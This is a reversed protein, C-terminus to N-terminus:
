SWNRITATAHDLAARVRDHYPQHSAWALDHEIAWLLRVLAEYQERARKHEIAIIAQIAGAVPLLDRTPTDKFISPYREILANAQETSSM